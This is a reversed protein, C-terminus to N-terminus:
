LQLTRRIRQMLVPLSFPKTVHDFAGLELAELVEREDARFTLMIVRTHQLLGDHALRRLVALGDLRPLDVDLLVVRTKLRPYSGALSNVAEEGDRLWVHHYGRTEFAHLLIQALTEDDEVLVIDANRLAPEQDLRWGAPLIRNCGAEKAQYLAQNAAWYLTQLDIGDTPYEAIGASFTVHFRAGDASAFEEQRLAELVEALRHMGGDRPMGYMGVIFEEGGWRAVVDESRFSWQLLEGLRHLVDDGMAHGHQDSMQKFHDLTLIALSLPQRQRGALHLFQGLMQTSKRRNALSTLVDTEAMSRLLYSRELRNHIRAMLEPGIIPKGVYDDAGATFVRQVTAADTHATLFLIPLERWRHDNRVVRCLATGDLHPMDVDLMLLDPSTEELTDWFRRPDDLTTLRFGRPELLARLVALVQPDDDVALIHTTATRTQVLLSTVAELIQAPPMPKRLFGRGGLRAVEVRDVFTDHATIVMVPIPSTQATLEALLTLGAESTGESTAACSLELLVVHPRTRTIVQRAVTLNPALETRIGRATAEVVLQEGLERDHDVVLLLPRTDEPVRELAPSLALPRELEKLLAMVLDSLRLAHTQELTGGTQLLHEIERALRSGETFGFTGVSGALKHAERGAQHRLEDDLTGELVAMAAQELVAVQKTITEKCHEWIEALEAM